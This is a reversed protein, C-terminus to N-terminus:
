QASGALRADFRKEVPIPISFKDWNEAIEIELFM